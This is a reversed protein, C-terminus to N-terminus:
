SASGHTHHTRPLDYAAARTVQTIYQSVILSTSIYHNTVLNLTVSESQVLLLNTFLSYHTARYRTSSKRFAASGSNILVSATMIDM